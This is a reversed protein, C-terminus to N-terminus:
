LFGKEGENIRNKNNAKPNKHLLVARCPKFPFPYIHPMFIPLLPFDSCKGLRWDADKKAELNPASCVGFSVSCSRCYINSIPFTLLYVVLFPSWFLNFSNSFFIFKIFTHCSFFSLINPFVRAIFLVFVVFWIFTLFFIFDCHDDDILQDRGTRAFLWGDIWDTLRNILWNMLELRHRPLVELCRM